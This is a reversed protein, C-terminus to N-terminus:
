IMPDEDNFERGEDTIEDISGPIEKAIDEKNQKEQEKIATKVFRRQSGSEEAQKLLREGDGIVVSSRTPDIKIVPKKMEVKISDWKRMFDIFGLTPVGYSNVGVHKVTLYGNKYLPTLTSQACQLSTEMHEAFTRTTIKDKLRLLTEIARKANNYENPKEVVNFSDLITLKLKKKREMGVVNVKKYKESYDKLDLETNSFIEEYFKMAADVHEKKVIVQRHYPDTSFVRAAIAVTIKSFKIHFDDSDVFPFGCQYDRRIQSSSKLIYEEVDVPIVIDSPKRSWVWKILLNCISNTFVPNNRIGKSYIEPTIVKTKTVLPIDIRRLIEDNVGGKLADQLALVGFDYSAVTNNECDDRKTPNSVLVLRVRVNVSLNKGSKAGAIIGDSMISKLSEIVSSKLYSAEDIILLKRDCMPFIGYKPRFDGGPYSAMTVTLGTENTHTGSIYHGVGFHDALVQCLPTKGTGSDGVMWTNIWGPVMQAKSELRFNLVSHFTLDIAMAELYRGRIKHVSDEFENQITVLKEWVSQNEGPQFVKLISSTKADLQFNDIDDSPDSVTDFFFVVNGTKPNVHSYGSLTYKRNEAFSDKSVCCAMIDGVSLRKQDDSMEGPTRTEKDAVPFLLITKANLDEKVTYGFKDCQKPIGALNKILPRRRLDQLFLLSAIAQDKLSYNLSLIGCSKKDTKEAVHCKNCFDMTMPHDCTIKISTPIRFHDKGTVSSMVADVWIRRNKHENSLCSELPLKIMREPNQLDHEVYGCKSGSCKVPEHGPQSLARMFACAFGYNGRNSFVTKAVMSVEILRSRRASDTDSDYKIRCVWESLKRVAYEQSKGASLFYGMLALLISHSSHEVLPFRSLVDNVCDPRRNIDKDTLGSKLSLVPKLNQAQIIDNKYKEVFGNFWSSAHKNPSGIDYDDDCYFLERPNKALLCIEDYNLTVIENYDLEIKYLGSQSHKTNPVRIQRRKSYVRLDVYNLKLAETLWNVALKIFYTLYKDPEIGLALPNIFVHIGRRGSFFYRIDEKSLGLSDNFFQTIKKIDSQILNWKGEPLENKNVDLDFYFPCIHVEHGSNHVSEDDEGKNRKQQDFAEETTKYIDSADRFQQITHFCDTNKYKEAYRSIDEFHIRRWKSRVTKETAIKKNAHFDVYKFYQFKRYFPFVPM